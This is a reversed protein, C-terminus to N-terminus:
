NITAFKSKYIQSVTLAFATTGFMSPFKNIVLVVVTETKDIGILLAPLQILGGGGAFADILGACFAALALFTFTYLTLDAIV